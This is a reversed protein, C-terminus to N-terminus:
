YFVFLLSIITIITCNHKFSELEEPVPTEALDDSESLDETTDNNNNDAESTNNPPTNQNITNTNTDFTPTSSPSSSHVSSPSTGLANTSARNGNPIPISSISSFSSYSSSSVLSAQQAKEQAIKCTESLVALKKCKPHVTYQCDVFLCM